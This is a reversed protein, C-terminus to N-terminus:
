SSGIKMKGIRPYDDNEDLGVRDLCANPAGKWSWLLRRQSVPWFVDLTDIIQPGQICRRGHTQTCRCFGSEGQGM